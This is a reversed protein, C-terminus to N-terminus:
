KSNRFLNMVTDFITKKFLTEQSKLPIIKPHQKTEIKKRVGNNKITAKAYGNSKAVELAGSILKNDTKINKNHDPTVDLSMRGIQASKLQADMFEYADDGTDANSYSIQILLKSVIEANRIEEFIDESQEIIVEFDEDSNIVQKIADQLFTEVAGVNINTNKVIIFRHASPIFIYDSEALNPFKNAPIDVNEVDMTELNIWDKGDIVTFKSFKGYLIDTNENKYSYVDSFLTRLIAHKGGKVPVSIKKSHIQNIIDKYAEDGGRQNSLLKINVIQISFTKEKVTKAM